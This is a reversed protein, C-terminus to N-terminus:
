LIWTGIPMTASFIHGVIFKTVLDFHIRCFKSFSKRLKHYQYGQNLLKATLLKNQTNFDTVHSSVRAFSILQLIYVGIQHLGM